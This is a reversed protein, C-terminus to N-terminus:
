LGGWDVADLLDAEDTFRVGFVNGRAVDFAVVRRVGVALLECVVLVGERKKKM